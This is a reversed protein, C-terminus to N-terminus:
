LELDYTISGLVESKLCARNFYSKNHPVIYRDRALRALSAETLRNVAALGRGKASRRLGSM